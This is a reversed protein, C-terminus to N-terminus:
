YDDFPNYAAARAAVPPAPVPAPGFLDPQQQQQRLAGPAAFDFAAVAAPAGFPDRAFPDRSPVGAIPAAVPAPAPAPLAPPAAVAAAAYLDGLANFVSLRTTPAPAPPSVGFSSFADQPAAAGVAVGRLQALQRNLPQPPAPPGGGRAAPAAAPAGLGTFAFPDRATDTLSGGPLTFSVAALPPPPAGAAVGAASPAGFDIGWDSSTASGGGGGTAAAAGAIASAAAGFAAASPLSADFLLDEVLLGGGGSSTADDGGGGGSGGGGRPMLKQASPPPSPVPRAPPQQRLRPGAAPAPAPPRTSLANGLPAAFEADFSLARGRTGGSGSGGGGGAAAGRPEHSGYTREPGFGEVAVAGPAGGAPATAAAGAALYMARAKSIGGAAPHPRGAGGPPVVPSSPAAASTASVGQFSFPDDDFSTSTPASVPLSAAPATFDFDTSAPAAATTTSTYASQMGGLLDALDPASPSVTSSVSPRGGSGATGGRQRAPAAGAPAAPALHHNPSGVGASSGGPVAAAAAEAVVPAAGRYAPADRHWKRQVLLAKILPRLADADDRPVAPNTAADFHAWFLARGRRNGAVDVIFDAEQDAFNSM